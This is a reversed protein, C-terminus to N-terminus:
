RVSSALADIMGLIALTVLLGPVVVIYGLTLGAVAQGRGARRGRRTAALGAHGFIVALLSPVGFLFWSGLVGLIGFVLAATCWGSSQAPVLVYPPPPWSQAPPWRPSTAPPRPVPSPLSARARPMTPEAQPLPEPRDADSM